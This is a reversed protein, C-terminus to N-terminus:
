PQPDDKGLNNVLMSLSLENNAIYAWTKFSGYKDVSPVIKRIYDLISHRVTTNPRGKPRKKYIFASILRVPIKKCSIGIFIKLKYLAILSVLKKSFKFMLEHHISDFVKVLDVFFM